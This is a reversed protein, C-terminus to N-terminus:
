GNRLKARLQDITTQDLGLGETLYTQLDGYRSNMEDIGARLFEPEVEARVRAIAAKVEGSAEDKELVKEEILDRRYENSLLYQYMIQDEDAGAIMQLVASIWGTRDKGETCHIIVPGSAALIGKLVQATKARQAPDSVFERNMSERELRADDPVVYKRSPRSPVAFLNVLHYTAGKIKPDKTREAVEDTRLDFIDSLGIKTLTKKDSSSIGKLKGSRYVVGRAMFTGDSLRIGSGSGAVDRFNPVSDIGEAEEFSLFGTVPSAAATPQVVPAAAPAPPGQLPSQSVGCGSLLGALAAMTGVVTVARKTSFFETM